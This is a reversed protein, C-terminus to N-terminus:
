GVHSSVSNEDIGKRLTLVSIEGPCNFRLPVSSAGAGRSTYGTMGRFQWRGAATHRPARSNTLLPKAGPLCIQGGHTHGCLYLKARFDAAQKYAEPSHALFLSFGKEPVNRYGMRADNMKYYHPDDVGVVWIKQGNREIEWSDNILMVLGAEELDPAMEICDHNGLVGLTGHRANVHPVLCRLHRLSPAIPGYTQMRIDGGVLCLDVDITQIRKAIELTLEPLGDLHLDTLLLVRFGDFNDPLDPFWFTEHEVKIDLTNKVGEEYLGTLKFFWTLFVQDSLFSTLNLLTQWRALPTHCARWERFRVTSRILRPYNKVSPRYIVYNWFRSGYYSVPVFCCVVLLIHVQSLKLVHGLYLAPLFSEFSQDLVPVTSGKSINFRRKFFSSILDGTMALIAAIASYAWPLGFLPSSATAGVISVIIGRITKNSGLLPRKDFFLLGGDVAATFRNGLIVSALPPLFNVWILFAVIKLIVVM